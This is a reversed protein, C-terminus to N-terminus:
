NKCCQDAYEMGGAGYGFQACQNLCNEATNNEAFTLQYPFTRDVANDRNYSTNTPVHEGYKLCYSIQIMGGYVFRTMITEDLLFYGFLQSVLLM